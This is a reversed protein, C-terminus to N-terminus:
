GAICHVAAILCYIHQLAIFQLKWVIDIRCAIVLIFLYLKMRLHCSYQVFFIDPHWTCKSMCKHWGYFLLYIKSGGGELAGGRLLCVFLCGELVVLLLIVPSFM